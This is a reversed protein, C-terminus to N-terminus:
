FNIKFAPVVVDKLVASVVATAESQEWQTVAHQRDRQMQQVAKVSM